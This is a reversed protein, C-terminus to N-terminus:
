VSVDNACQGCRTLTFRLVQYVNYRGTTLTTDSSFTRQSAATQFYFATLDDNMRGDIDGM